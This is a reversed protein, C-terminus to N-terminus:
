DSTKVKPSRTIRILEVKGSSAMLTAEIGGPPTYSGDHVFLASDIRGGELAEHITDISLSRTGRIAYFETGLYAGVDEGQRRLEPLEDTVLGVFDAFNERSYPQRHQADAAVACLSLNSALLVILWGEARPTGLVWEIGLYGALLLIPLFPLLMRAAGGTPYVIILLMSVLLFAALEPSRASLRVFGIVMPVVLIAAIGFGIGPYEVEALRDASPVLVGALRYLQYWALNEYIRRVLGAADIREVGDGFEGSAEWLAGIDSAQVEQVYTVNHIGVYQRSECRVSWVGYALLLWALAHALIWRIQTASPGRANMIAVFFAPALALANGRILVASVGAAAMIVGWLLRGRAGEVSKVKIMAILAAMTSTLAPIESMVRHAYDFFLPTSALVLALPPAAFPSAVVRFLPLSLIVGLLAISLMALKLVVWNAESPGILLSLLIPFGPMWHKSQFGEGESLGRALAMYAFSDNQQDERCDPVANLYTLALVFLALGLIALVVSSAKRNEKMNAKGSKRM